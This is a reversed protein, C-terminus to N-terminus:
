FKDAGESKELVKELSGEKYKAKLTVKGDRDWYTNTGHLRSNKYYSMFWKEGLEYWGQSL